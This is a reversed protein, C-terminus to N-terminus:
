HQMEAGVENAIEKIRNRAGNKQNQLGQMEEELEQLERMKQEFQSRKEELQNNCDKVVGRLSHIEVIKSRQRAMSLDQENPGKTREERRRESLRELEYPTMRSMPKPKRLGARKKSRVSLGTHSKKPHSNGTQAVIPRPLLTGPEQAPSPKRAPIVGDSDSDDDESDVTGYSSSNTTQGWSRSGRPLSQMFPMYTFDNTSNKLKGTNWTNQIKYQARYQNHQFIALTNHKSRRRNVRSPTLQNGGNM